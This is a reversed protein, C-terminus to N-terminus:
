VVVSTCVQATKCHSGEVGDQGGGVDTEVM